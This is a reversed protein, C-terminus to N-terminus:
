TLMDRATEEKSGSVHIKADPIMTMTVILTRKGKKRSHKEALASTAQVRLSAGRITKLNLCGYWAGYQSPVRMLEGVPGTDRCFDGICRQLVDQEKEAMIMKLFAPNAYEIFGDGTCAIVGAGAYELADDQLQHRYRAKNRRECNRVSFILDGDNVLHISSIAIEAPFQTEDKRKCSANVITFRGDAVHSQIKFLVKSNLTPILQNCKINWMEEETYGFFDRARQNSQILYGKSDVILIGDYLGSLLSRFLDRDKKSDSGSNQSLLEDTILVSEFENKQVVSDLDVGASNISIKEQAPVDTEPDEEHTKKKFPNINFM